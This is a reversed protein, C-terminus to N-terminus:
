KKDETPNNKFYKRYMRYFNSYNEYGVRMAAITPPMGDRILKDALALKKQLIYQKPSINMKETFLHCVSSKSRATHAALDDLLIKECLHEDIYLILKQLFEDVDDGMNTHKAQVDNYFIQIMLSQALPAYFAPAGDRCIRKIEDIQRSFFVALDADKQLFRDQLVAPIATIDFLATIRQYMGKKNATITHYLLPPIIVTQKETLRYSRGELMINIDGELVVIMEFQAHCHSEWLVPDDIMSETYEFTFGSTQFSHTM